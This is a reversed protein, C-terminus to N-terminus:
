WLVTATISDSYVGPIVNQLAPIRGYITINWPAVKSMVNSLNVSGGSGDGLIRSRAADSYLNYFLAGGATASMRRQAFSGSGGANLNVTVSLPNRAPNNCTVTISGTSSLDTISFLDYFGFNVPTTSINCQVANAGKALLLVLAATVFRLNFNM